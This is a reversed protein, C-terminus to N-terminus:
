KREEQEENMKILEDLKDIITELRKEMRRISYVDYNYTHVEDLLKRAEKLKRLDYEDFRQIKM